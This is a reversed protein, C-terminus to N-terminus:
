GKMDGEYNRMERGGVPAFFACVCGCEEFHNEHGPKPFIPVDPPNRTLVNPFLPEVRQYGWEYNRMERGGVPAFFACVCGCEEFHNEHGPKPFIPVDPPNRRLVNPSFRSWGKIGGEYNRMERGGVPAFFACVCGCEEFHNEHGPKPFIPVDPPNRSFMRPSAAGGKSVGKMIRCKEEVWLPSPPVCGCGCEAFHNEHGPQPFIPVDPPNEVSFRAHSCKPFLPEVRQHGRRLEADRKWGCPHLLCVCWGCEAFHNEHGPKPFLISYSKRFCLILRERKERGERLGPPKNINKTPHLSSHTPNLTPSFTKLEISFRAHSCKPFAAGGKPVGKMIRCKGEVWLPLSSPACVVANRSITKTVLNRSSPCTPLIHRVKGILGSKSM